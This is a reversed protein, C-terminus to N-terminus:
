VAEQHIKHTCAQSQPALLSVDKLRGTELSNGEQMVFSYVYSWSITRM